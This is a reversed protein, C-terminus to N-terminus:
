DDGYLGGFQYQPVSRRWRERGIGSPQEYVSMHAGRYVQVGGGGSVNNFADRIICNHLYAGTTLRIPADNDTGKGNAFEIGEIEVVTDAVQVTKFQKSRNQGDLVTRHLYDWPLASAKERESKDSETGAFGGYLAVSDQLTIMTELPYTGAKVWVETYERSAYASDLAQQINGMPDAWSTGEGNGGPAVYIVPNATVIMAAMVTAILVSFRKM